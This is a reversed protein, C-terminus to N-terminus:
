TVGVSQPLGPVGGTEQTVGTTEQVGTAEAIRAGGVFFCFVVVSSSM